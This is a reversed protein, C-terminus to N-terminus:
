AVEKRKYSEFRQMNCGCDMWARIDSLRWRVSGAIRIPEPLLGASLHRWVTRPHLGLLQGVEGVQLLRDIVGDGKFNSESKAATNKMVKLM